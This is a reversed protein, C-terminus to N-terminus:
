SRSLLLRTEINRYGSQRFAAAMPFNGLDTTATIREAGRGAHSRTIADLIIRAYGRGRSEPVVGLYGVNPNYSTASPIALGVLACDAQYVARWWDREGPAGLYFDMERRATEEPSMRARRKRTEDDLSGDGIRRFIELMKGDDPEAVFVLRDDPEPVGLAPTWEFQLREVAHTFGVTAAADRRWAVAGRIAPDTRWDNRLTMRFAEPPPDGHEQFRRHAAALLRAALGARDGTSPDTWLCDLVLPSTSDPRGWWVARAVIRGEDQAIWTWEPRFMRRALDEHYQQASVFGVPERAIVAAVLNLAEARTDEHQLSRFNV